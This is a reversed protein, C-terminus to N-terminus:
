EAIAVTRSGAVNWSGNSAQTQLQVKVKAIKSSEYPSIDIIRFHHGNDEACMEDEARKTLFTGAATYYRLNIRACVGSSNNLHLGGLLRPAVEAGDLEWSMDSHGLPAGLDFSLDGFDVGEETIKVKDDPPDASYTKAEVTSWGSATTKELSIKM